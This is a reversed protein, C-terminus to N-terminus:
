LLISKWSVSDTEILMSRPPVELTFDSDRTKLM